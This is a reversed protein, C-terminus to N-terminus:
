FGLCQNVNSEIGLLVIHAHIHTRQILAALNQASFAVQKIQVAPIIMIFQNGGIGSHLGILNSDKEATQLMAKGTGLIIHTNVLEPCPHIGQLRQGAKVIALEVFGVGSIHAKLNILRVLVSKRHLPGSAAFM